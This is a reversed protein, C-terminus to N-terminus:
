WLCIPPPVTNPIPHPPPYPALASCGLLPFYFSFLWSFGWSHSSFISLFWIFQQINMPIQLLMGFDQSWQHATLPAMGQKISFEWSHLCIWTIQNATIWLSFYGSNSSWLVFWETPTHPAGSAVRVALELLWFPLNWNEPIQSVIACFVSFIWM